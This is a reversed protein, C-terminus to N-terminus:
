EFDSNIVGGDQRDCLRQLLSLNGINVGAGTPGPFRRAPGYTGPDLDYRIQRVSGDSFLANFGSTHASGFRDVKNTNTNNVAQDRDSAPQFQGTRITNIWFGDFFGNQDGPQVSGILTSDLRKEAVMITNSLGDSIQTLRIPSDVNVNPNATVWATTENGGPPATTRNLMFVGFHYGTGWYFNAPATTNPGTSAANAISIPGGNGAYDNMPRGGLVQPNRRSPCFYFKPAIAPDNAVTGRFKGDQQAQSPGQYRYYNDEELQPLIQYAWGWDQHEHTRIVFGTAFTAGTAISFTRRSDPPGGGTPLTKDRAYNHIAIGIQKLNNSCMLSSAAERVKQVAPLILGMLIVIISIVVLLEVLTFGARGQSGRAKM